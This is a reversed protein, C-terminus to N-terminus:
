ENLLKTVEDNYEDAHCQFTLNVYGIFMPRRDAIYKQDSYLGYTSEAMNLMLDTGPITKAAMVADSFDDMWDILTTLGEQTGEAILSMDYKGEEASKVFGPLRVGDEFVFFLVQVTLTQGMEKPRNVKNYRDFRQEEPNKLAGGVPIIIIGPAVNLPDIEGTFNSQDPRMPSFGLFVQPEQRKVKRVDMDSAPTKM